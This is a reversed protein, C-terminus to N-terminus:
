GVRVGGFEGQGLQDPQAPGGGRAQKGDELGAPLPGALQGGRPKGVEAVRRAGFPERGRELVAAFLDAGVGRGSQSAEVIGPREGRQDPGEVVIGVDEVM